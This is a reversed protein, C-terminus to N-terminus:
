GKYRARYGGVGGGGGAFTGTSGNGGVGYVVGTEVEGALPLTLTGQAGGVTQSEEVWQVGPLDGVALVGTFSLERGYEVLNEVDAELPYVEGIGMGVRGIGAMM